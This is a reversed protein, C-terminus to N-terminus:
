VTQRQFLNKSLKVNGDFDSVDEGDTYYVGTKFSLVKSFVTDKITIVYAQTYYETEAELKALNFQKLNSSFNTNKFKQNLLEPKPNTSFIIGNEIIKPTGTEILKYSIQYALDEVKSYQFDEIVVKNVELEKKCSILFFLLLFLIKGM